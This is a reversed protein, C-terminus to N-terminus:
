FLGGIISTAESLTQIAALAELFDNDDDVGAITHSADFCKITWVRIEIGKSYTVEPEEDLWVKTSFFISKDSKIILPLKTMLDSSVAKIKALSSLGSFPSRNNLVSVSNKQLKQVQHLFQNVPSTQALTVTVTYTSYRNVSVVVNGDMSRRHTFVPTERKISVVQGEAFGYLKRGALTVSIDSPSYTYVSM